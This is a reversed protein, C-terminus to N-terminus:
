VSEANEIIKKALAKAGDSYFHTVEYGNQLRYYCLEDEKPKRKPQTRVASGVLIMKENVFVKVILAM